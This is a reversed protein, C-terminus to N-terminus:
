FFGFRRGGDRKQEDAGARARRRANRDNEEQQLRLRQQRKQEKEAAQGELRKEEALANVQAPTLKSKDRGKVCTDYENVVQDHVAEQEAFTKNAAELKKFTEGCIPDNRRSDARHVEEQERLSREHPTEDPSVWTNREGDPRPPPRNAAAQPHSPPSKLHTYNQSGPVTFGDGEMGGRQRRTRRRTRRTRRTRTRRTRTRRTRTRRKSKSNRTKRVRRSNRIKKSRMRTM